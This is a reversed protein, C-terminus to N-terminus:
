YLIYGKKKAMQEIMIKWNKNPNKQIFQKMELVSPHNKLSGQIMDVIMDKIQKKTRGNEPIEYKPVVQARLMEESMQIKKPKKRQTRQTPPVVVMCEMGRKKRPIPTPNALSNKDSKEVLNSSNLEVTNLIDDNDKGFALMNDFSNPKNSQKITQTETQPTELAKLIEWLQPDIEKFSKIDYNEVTNHTQPTNSNNM